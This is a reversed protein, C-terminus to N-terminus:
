SYYERQRKNAAQVLAGFPFFHDLRHEISSFNQV